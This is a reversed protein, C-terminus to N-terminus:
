FLNSNGHRIAFEYSWEIKLSLGSFCLLKLLIAHLSLSSASPADRGLARM